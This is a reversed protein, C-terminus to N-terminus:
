ELDDGCFHKLNAYENDENIDLYYHFFEHLATSNVTSGVTVARKVLNFSPDDELIEVIPRNKTWVCYYSEAMYVGNLLTIPANNISYMDYRDWGEFHSEMKFDIQIVFYISIGSVIIVFINVVTMSWVLGMMLKENM